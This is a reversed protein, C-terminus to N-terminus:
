HEDNTLANKWNEILLRRSKMWRSSNWANITQQAFGRGVLVALYM